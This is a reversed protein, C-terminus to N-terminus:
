RIETWNLSVVTISMDPRIVNRDARVSMDNRLTIWFMYKWTLVIEVVLFMIFFIGDLTVALRKWVEQNEGKATKRPQGTRKWNMKFDEKATEESDEEDAAVEATENEASM